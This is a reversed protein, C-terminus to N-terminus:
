IHQLFSLSVFVGIVIFIVGLVIPGNGAYVYDKPDDKNIYLEVDDGIRMTSSYYYLKTEYEENNFIYRIYAWRERDGDEHISTITAIVQEGEHSLLNRKRIHSITVFSGILVFIIGFSITFLDEM